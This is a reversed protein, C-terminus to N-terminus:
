RENDEREADVEKGERELIRRERMEGKADRMTKEKLM